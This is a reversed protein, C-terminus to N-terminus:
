PESIPKCFSGAPTASGVVNAANNLREILLLYLRPNAPQTVSVVHPLLGNVHVEHPPLLVTHRHGPDNLDCDLYLYHDHCTDYFGVTIYDSPFSGCTDDLPGSSCIGGSIWQAVQLPPEPDGEWEKATVLTLDIQHHHDPLAAYGYADDLCTEGVYSDSCDLWIGTFNTSTNTLPHDFVDVDILSADHPDISVGVGTKGCSMGLTGLEPDLEPDENTWFNKVYKGFGDAYRGTRTNYKGPAGVVWYWGRPVEAVKGHWWKTTGIPDDHGGQYLANGEADEHYLVSDGQEINPDRSRPCPLHVKVDPDTVLVGKVMVYPLQAMSPCTPYDKSSPYGIANHYRWNEQACSLKPLAHSIQEVIKEFNETIQDEGCFNPTIGLAAPTTM